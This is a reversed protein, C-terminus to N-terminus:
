FDNIIQTGRDTNDLRLETFIGAAVVGSWLESAENIRVMFNMRTMKDYSADQNNEPEYNTYGNFYSGMIAGAPLSLTRYITTSLLSRILGIFQDRILTSSEGGTSTANEKSKVYLDIYFNTENHQSTENFSSSNVGDIEINIMLIEAQNFPKTRGVYLNIPQDIQRSTGQSLVKQNDLECKLISGIANRVVEFGQIPILSLQASTISGSSM